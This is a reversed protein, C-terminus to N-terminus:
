PNQKEPRVAPLVIERPGEDLGVIRIIQPKEITKEVNEVPKEAPIEPAKDVRQMAKEVVPEPKEVAVQEVKGATKLIITEVPAAVPDPRRLAAVVQERTAALALLVSEDEVTVQLGRVIVPFAPVAQRLKEASGNAEQASGASLVADLELGNRVSLSGEFSHASADLPVFRNALDDPLHSSVVWMDKEAFKAARSLLPSYNKSETMSRDVAIELTKPDGIMALQDNMRAVSLVGKESSFWMDIGRYTMAKLGKKFAQDRMAAVPFNGNVLALFEPSSILVQRASHLCPLDPFGLDGWLEAEIPDAFPSTRVVMWDIGVLATAEPSANTWWSPHSQAAAIMAGALFL